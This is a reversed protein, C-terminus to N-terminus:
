KKVLSNEEDRMDDVVPCAMLGATRLREVLFLYWHKEQLGIWTIDCNEVLLYYGEDRV